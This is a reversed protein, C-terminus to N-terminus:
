ARQRAKESCVESDLRAVIAPFPGTFPAEHKKAEKDGAHVGPSIDSHIRGGSRLPRPM